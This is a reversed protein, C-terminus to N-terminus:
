KYERIKLCLDLNDQTIKNEKDLKEVQEKLLEIEKDTFDVELGKDKETNWTLSNQNSKIEYKKIDKQTINIKENIDKVLIQSILNSEKPYLENILMRNKITLKM